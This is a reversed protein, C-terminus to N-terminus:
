LRLGPARPRLRREDEARSRLPVGGACSTGRLCWDHMTIINTIVVMTIFVLLSLVSVIAVIIISSPVLRTVEMFTCSRHGRLSRRVSEIKRSATFKGESSQPRLLPMNVSTARKNGGSRIRFPVFPTLVLPDSNKYYYYYYYNNNNNTICPSTPYDWEDVKM